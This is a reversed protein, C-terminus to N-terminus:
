AEKPEAKPCTLKDLQEQLMKNKLKMLKMDQEARELDRIIEDLFADVEGVDYGRFARSFKKEIIEQTKM